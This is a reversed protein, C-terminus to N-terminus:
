DDAEAKEEVTVEKMVNHIYDPKPELQWEDFGAEFFDRNGDHIRIEKVATPLSRAVKIARCIGGVQSEYNHIAPVGEIKQYLDPMPNQYWFHIIPVGTPSVQHGKSIGWSQAHKENDPTATVLKNFFKNANDIALESQFRDKIFVYTLRAHHTKPEEEGEYQFGCCCFTTEMGIRHLELILPRMPRDISDLVTKEEAGVNLQALRNLYVETAKQRAQHRISLRM